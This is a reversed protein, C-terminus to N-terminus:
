RNTGRPFVLSQDDFDETPLSKMAVTLEGPSIVSLALIHSHSRVNATAAAVILLAVTVFGTIVRHKTMPVGGHGFLLPMGTRIVLTHKLSISRRHPRGTRLFDSRGWGLQKL